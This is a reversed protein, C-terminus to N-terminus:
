TYLIDKKFKTKPGAHVGLGDAHCDTGFLIGIVDFIKSVYYYGIILWKDKM